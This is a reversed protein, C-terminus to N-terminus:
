YFVETAYDSIRVLQNLTTKSMNELESFDEFCRGILYYPNYFSESTGMSNRGNVENETKLSEKIRKLIEEKEM